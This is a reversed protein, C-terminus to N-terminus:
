NGVSISDHTGSHVVTIVHKQPLLSGELVPSARLSCTHIVYRLINVLQVCSDGAFSACLLRNLPAMGNAM